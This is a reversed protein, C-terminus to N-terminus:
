GHRRYLLAALGMAVLVCAAPEPVVSVHLVIEEGSAPVFGDLDAVEFGLHAVENLDRNNIALYDGEAFGPPPQTHPLPNDLINYGHARSFDLVAAGTAGLPIGAWDGRWHSNNAPNNSPYGSPGCLGTNMFVLVDIDTGAPGSVYTVNLRISDYKDISTWHFLVPDLELRATNAPPWDDGFVTTGAGYPALTLVFEVGDGPIDRRSVLSGGSERVFQSSLLEDDYFRYPVAQAAGWSGLILLAAALLSPMRARSNVAISLTRAPNNM